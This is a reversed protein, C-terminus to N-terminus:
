VNVAHGQAMVERHASRRGHGRVIPNTSLNPRQVPHVPPGRSLRVTTARANKAAFADHWYTQRDFPRSYLVFFRDSKTARIFRVRRAHAAALGFRERLSHVASSRPNFICKHKLAARFTL